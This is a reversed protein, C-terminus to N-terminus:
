HARSRSCSKIRIRASLTKFSLGVIPNIPMGDACNRRQRWRRSGIILQPGSKTLGRPWLREVLIRLGDSHSPDDYARKLSVSVM